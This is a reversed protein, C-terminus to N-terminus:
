LCVLFAPLYKPTQSLCQLEPSRIGSHCHPGGSRRGSLEGAERWLSGCVCSAVELRFKVRTYSATM